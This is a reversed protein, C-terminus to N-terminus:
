FLPDDVPAGGSSSRSAAAIVFASKDRYLVAWRVPGEGGDLPSGARTIVSYGEMGDVSLEEGHGFWAGKLSMLLFERPSKKDPRKDLTIQMVADKKRTYTLIRERQNEVTWGKPFAMTLNMGEHYFRNDRVIGQARSTGYPLGDIAKLFADRNDTWGNPPETTINAVGKAAQVEREDPAPHDSFVGHYVNPERGEDKARNIEFAEEAK